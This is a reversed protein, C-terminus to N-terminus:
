SAAALPQSEANHWSKRLKELAVRNNNLVKEAEAERGQSFLLRSLYRGTIQPMFNERHMQYLFTIADDMQGLMLSSQVLDPLVALSSSYANRAGLFLRYALKPMAANMYLDGLAVMTSLDRPEQKLSDLLMSEAERINGRRLVHTALCRTAVGQIPGLTRLKDLVQIAVDDAGSMLAYSAKRLTVYPQSEWRKVLHQFGPLFKSPTLPKDVVQHAGFWSLAKRDNHASDSAFALTPVISTVPDCILNRLHGTVPVDVSDDLIILFALGSKVANVAQDVRPTSDIVTWSYPRLLERLLLHM